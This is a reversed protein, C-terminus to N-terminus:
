DRHKWFFYDVSESQGWFTKVLWSQQSTMVQSLAKTWARDIYVLSAFFIICPVGFHISNWQGTLRVWIAQSTQCKRHFNTPASMESRELSIRHLTISTYKAMTKKKNRLPNKKSKLCFVPGEDYPLGICMYLTLFSPWLPPACLVLGGGYGGDTPPQPVQLSHVEQVRCRRVTKQKKKCNQRIESFPFWYMKTKKPGDFMTLHGPITSVESSIKITDSIGLTRLIPSTEPSNSTM